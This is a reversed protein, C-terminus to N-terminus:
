FFTCLVSDEDDDSLSGSSAGTLGPAATTGTNNAYQHALNSNASVVSYVADTDNSVGSLSSALSSTRNRLASDLQQAAQSPNNSTERRRRSVLASTPLLYITITTGVSYDAPNTPSASSLEVQGASVGSAASIDTKVTAELDAFDESTRDLYGDLFPTSLEIGTVEVALSDTEVDTFRFTHVFDNTAVNGNADQVNSVFVRASKGSVDEWSFGSRLAITIRRNECVIVMNDNNFLQNLDTVELSVQFWFPKACQLEEDFEFAIDDGPQFEGDAPSPYGMIVPAERDVHGVVQQSYNEDIGDPVENISATCQARIRLEYEGNTLDAVYWWVTVYGFENELTRIDLEESDKDRASLWVISRLPKYEIVVKELREDELWTRKAFDSNFAVIRLQGPRSEDEDLVKNVTFKSTEGIEGVLQVPSCPQLFEAELYVYEVTTM